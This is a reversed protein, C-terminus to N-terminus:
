MVSGPWLSKSLKEANGDILDGGKIHLGLLLMQRVKNYLESLHCYQSPEGHASVIPM